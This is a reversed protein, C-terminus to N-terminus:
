PLAPTLLFIFAGGEEYVLGPVESDLGITTLSSASGISGLGINSIGLLSISGSYRTGGTLGGELVGLYDILSVLLLSNLFQSLLSSVM